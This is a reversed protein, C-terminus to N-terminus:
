AVNLMRALYYGAPLVFLLGDFRDLVGGHGPLMNGFDKVGLSRKLMSEVLDGIPAAIAVVVGLQIAHIGKTWPQVNLLSASFTLVALFAALCGGVLGEWTKNPSIWPLLPSRGIASGFVLGGIDYAVTGVVIAVLTGTGHGNGFSDRMSLILAAYAGMLGIYVIGLMTVALNPLPASDLSGSAVFWLAAAAFAVFLVVPIGSEGRWYAALPLAITGVIGVLQAPQYGQRRVSDLFEVAALGLVAVVLVMVYRPGLRCLIAFLGAMAVGVAIAVPMNRGSARGSRGYGSAEQRPGPVGAPRRTRSATVRSPDEEDPRGLGIEAAPPEVDAFFPDAPAAHEDLAGVRTGEAFSSFTFEGGPEHDPSDDRWVPSQGSLGRWSSLDDTSAEDRLISPVEGTPPETWHPLPGTEDGFRLPPDDSASIIRVAETLDSPDTRRHVQEDDHGEDPGLEDTM